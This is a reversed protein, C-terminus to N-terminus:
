VVHEEHIGPHSAAGHNASLTLKPREQFEPHPGQALERGIDDARTLFRGARDSGWISLFGEFAAGEQETCLRELTRLGHLAAPVRDARSKSLAAISSAIETSLVHMDHMSGLLDQAEKLRTILGRARPARRAIPELLYRLRKISIRASHAEEVDAREHVLELDAGLQIAQQQILEGTVQGFSRPKEHQGGGLQVRLSALRPRLKGAAKVFRRGVAATSPDITEYKRGELRGILWSIGQIDEAGLGEGQKRLWELYVETDRAANTALTLRRLRQRMKRTVSGKLQSRYARTVSRLRRLGVRFDHLAETDQPDALRAQAHDIQDLYSLALLRASEQPSRELLDSPLRSSM